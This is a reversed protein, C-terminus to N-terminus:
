GRDKVKDNENSTPFLTNVPVNLVRALRLKEDDRLQLLGNEHLSIRSQPVKGYFALEHQTVDREFRIKKLQNM